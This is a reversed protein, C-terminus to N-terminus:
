ITKLFITPVFQLWFPTQFVVHLGCEFKLLHVVIWIQSSDGSEEGIKSLTQNGLGQELSKHCQPVGVGLIFVRKLTNPNVKVYNQV